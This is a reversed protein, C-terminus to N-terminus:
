WSDGKIVVFYWENVVLEGNIEMLWGNIMWGNIVM